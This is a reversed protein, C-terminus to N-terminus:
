AKDGTELKVELVAKERLEREVKAEAEFLKDQLQQKSIEVERLEEELCRKTIELTDCTRQLQARREIEETLAVQFGTLRDDTGAQSPSPPTGEVKRTEDGM